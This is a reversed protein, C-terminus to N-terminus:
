FRKCSSDLFRFFVMSNMTLLKSIYREMYRMYDQNQDIMLLELMQELCKPSYQKLAISFPRRGKATKTNNPLLVYYIYALYDKDDLDIYQYKIEKMM